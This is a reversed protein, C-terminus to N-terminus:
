RQIPRVEFHVGDGLVPFNLNVRPPNMSADVMEYVDVDTVNGTRVAFSRVLRFEPGQLAARLMRVTPFDVDANDIEREVV